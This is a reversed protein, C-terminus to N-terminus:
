HGSTATPLARKTRNVVSTRHLTNCRDAFESDLVVGNIVTTPLIVLTIDGATGRNAKTKQENTKGGFCHLGLPSEVEDSHM